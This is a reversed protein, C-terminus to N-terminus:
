TGTRLASVPAAFSSVDDTTTGDLALEALIRDPTLAYQCTVTRVATGSGPVVDRMFSSLRDPLEASPVFTREDPTTRWRRELM